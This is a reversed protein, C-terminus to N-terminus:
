SSHGAASESSSVKRPRTGFRTSLVAGQGVPLIIFLFLGIMIWSFIMITLNGTILQVLFFLGPILGLFLNGYLFTKFTYKEANLIRVGILNSLTTSSLISAALLALPVGLLALPLGLITICLGIFILFALFYALYGVFFSKLIGGEEIYQGVTKVNSKLLSACTASLVLWIVYIIFFIWGMTRYVSRNYERLETQGYRSGWTVAGVRSGPERKVKGSFALAGNEITGTSSVYIDGSFAIVTGEVTGHVIIDGFASVVDGEIVEDEEITIPRRFHVIDNRSTKMEELDESYRFTFSSDNSLMIYISDGGLILEEIWLGEDIGDLVKGMGEIKKRLKLLKKELDKIAYTDIGKLDELDELSELLEKEADLLAERVAPAEPPLTSDVEEDPVAEMDSESPDPPASYLAGLLLLCFLATLFKKM